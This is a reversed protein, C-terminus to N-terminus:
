PRSAASTIAVLDEEIREPTEASGYRKVVEGDPGVLFKTFNWKISESGFVGKKRSKLWTFLPHANAGNVNVKRFLPFTVDYTLSCFQQIEDDTGPEQGGFQDCPFGLVVLGRDKYKRYLRELGAYQPTYGCGSAVNVILLTKGRWADMRRPTGDIATVEVDYLSPPTVGQGEVGV